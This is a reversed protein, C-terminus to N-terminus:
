SLTDRVPIKACWPTGSGIAVTSTTASDRNRSTAVAARIRRNMRAFMTNEWTANFANKISWIEGILQDCWLVQYGTRSTANHRSIKGSIIGAARGTTYTSLANALTIASTPM